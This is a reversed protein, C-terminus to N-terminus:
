KQQWVCLIQSPDTLRTIDRVDNEDKQKHICNQLEQAASAGRRHSGANGGKNEEVPEGDFLIKRGEFEHQAVTQKVYTNRDNHEELRLDSLRQNSEAITKAHWKRPSMMALEAFTDVIFDYQGRCRKGRRLGACQNNNLPVHSQLIKGIASYVEVGLKTVIQHHTNKVRGAWEVVASDYHPPM